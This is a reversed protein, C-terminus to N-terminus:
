GHRWLGHLKAFLSTQEWNPDLLRYIDWGLRIKELTPDNEDRFLDRAFKKLASATDTKLGYEHRALEVPILELILEALPIEFGEYMDPYKVLRFIRYNLASIEQNAAYAWKALMINEKKNDYMKDVFEQIKSMIRRRWIREASEKRASFDGSSRLM